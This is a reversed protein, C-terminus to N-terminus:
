VEVAGPRTARPQEDAHHPPGDRLQSSAGRPDRTIVHVIWFAAAAWGFTLACAVSDAVTV